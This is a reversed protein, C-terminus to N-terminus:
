GFVVSADSVFFMLSIFFFVKTLLFLSADVLERLVMSFWTSSVSITLVRHTRSCYRHEEM